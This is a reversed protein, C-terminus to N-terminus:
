KIVFPVLTIKGPQVEVVRQQTGNLLFTIQYQGPPLGEIAFNEQWPDQGILSEGSYTKLYFQEIAPLGPGALQELLINNVTLYKGDGDMISGALAGQLQGSEDPLPALWLEPNRASKYTNEGYRVEFYLVSGSIDGSMGVSGIRQGSTVQDDVKVLVESLHAYLTFVPVPVGPLDHKLIVLNGYLGKYRGYPITFDDGAAVVVGDAAALVPTGTSNLFFVGRNADNIGARYPGFRSSPDITNRGDPGIPRRLLFYGPEICAEEACPGNASSAAATPSPSAAETAAAPTASAEPALAATPSAAPGAEPTPSAAPVAGGTEPPAPTATTAPFAGGFTCSLSILAIILGFLIFPSYTRNKM